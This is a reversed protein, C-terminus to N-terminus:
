PALIRVSMSNRSTTELQQQLVESSDKMTYFISGPAKLEVLYNGFPVQNGASDTQDWTFELERSTIEASAKPYFAELSPLEGSWVLQKQYPDFDVIRYIDIQLKTAATVDLDKDSANAVSISINVDDGTPVDGTQYGPPYPSLDHSSAKAFLSTAFPYGRWGAGFSYTKESWKAAIKKGGVDAPPVYTEPDTAPDPLYIWSDGLWDSRIHHWGSGHEFASVTQPALRGLVRASKHPHEYVDVHENLILDTQEQRLDEPYSVNPNLWLPGLWTQVQFWEKKMSATSQVSQPALYAVVAQGPDPSHFLPTVTRM